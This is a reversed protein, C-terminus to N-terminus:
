TPPISVTSGPPTGTVEAVNAVSGADKELQSIVYSAAGTASQGPALTAVSLTIAETIKPDSVSIGDMTVNGTNTVTFTYDVTNGDASLVGSKVLSLLPKAPVVVETPTGPTYSPDLPDSPSVADGPVSEAPPIPVASGPPTGTVEAVNAVSGADKEAQTITYTAVGTTSQGPALTTTNLVIADTIKADTVSIGDMTVNGTNTVTFTYDVTNGDASLVGTKVLSLTPKAPVVVETPTGPTNSPDLPQSPNAPDGPVSETPPISVASGPPTGTVEAVNVVSGADKELQSIVYSAAGTATESPALTTTNLVIADTIKADAVSIGDITVNGTNTVTFTYEVTNGDASLVGSKVLSLLPKAPVVVETPTGPTNSPDLPVSANDPDGPVSEAPSIPVASGPPTGTVEAVNVVSGADKELQSIVYSAAGTASQGPALTTANLTIPSTIKADAVSIGDITVNGTNTVTSTYEVTNGDASLVGTKVLFLSPDAPVVVETPVGSDGPRGPNDPDPTSPVPTIPQGPEEPDAPDFPPTGTVTALNVVVGADREAQTVTCSATGTTSEGPALTTTGLVIPDTIKPDTVSVGKMTMNGINTVIFVYDVTNGDASLEGTKAFSLGPDPPIPTVSAEDFNDTQDIDVADNAQISVLNRYDGSPNVRAQIVLEEEGGIAMAGIDWLGTTPSYSGQSPIASIFTYGSPLLDIARVQFVSDLQQIDKNTAKLNFTVVEGFLPTPNSVTKEISLDTERLGIIQHLLVGSDYSGDGVDAIAVKFRYTQGGVLGGIDRTIARTIGNYEIHVPFPGPQPNTNPGGDNRHGNIIYFETQNLNLGEYNADGQDGPVGGNVSNVAINDNNSPLKAFNKMTVGDGIGPGSVFLGFLDNFVSGVYDPYEESGFQFVIRIGTVGPALTIDFSYAVTNFAASPNIAILNPDTGTNTPNVSTVARVNRTTLDDVANGTSFLVGDDFGLGAGAIGNTFTAIQTNRNGQELMPNTIDLGTGTLREVIRTDNPTGGPNITAQALSEPSYAFLLLFVATVSCIMNWTLKPSILKM